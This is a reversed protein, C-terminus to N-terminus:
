NFLDRFEDILIKRNIKGNPNRPLATKLKLAKPQMFNPLQKQCYKLLIKEDFLQEDKAKIVLVVAEGLTLHPVGIAAVESISKHLYVCDEIESPSIRYGSSKIMDDKRGVFYLFGQEDKKVTDGSWVAM